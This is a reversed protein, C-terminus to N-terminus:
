SPRPPPLESVAVLLARQDFKGASANCPRSNGFPRFKGADRGYARPRGLAGPLSSDLTSTVGRTADSPCTAAIGGLVAQYRVSVAGNAVAQVALANEACICDSLALTLDRSGPLKCAIELAQTAAHHLMAEGCGPPIKLLAAARQQTIIGDEEDLVYLLEALRLQAVLGYAPGASTKM